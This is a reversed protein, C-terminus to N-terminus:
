APRGLRLNAWLQALGAAMFMVWGIAPPNNWVFVIGFSCWVLFGVFAARRRWARNGDHLAVLHCVGVLLLFSGWAWEPLVVLASFSRSSAFSEMPLLLWVGMMAKTAGGLLEIPETDHERLIAAYWSREISAQLRLFYAM